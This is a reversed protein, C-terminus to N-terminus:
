DHAPVLLTLTLWDASAVEVRDMGEAWASALRRISAQREELLRRRRGIEEDVRAPLHPAALAATCLARLEKETHPVPAAPARLLTHPDVEPTKGGYPAFVVPILEEMVVPPDSSTVYRTLVHLIATVERVDRCGRAAVRGEHTGAAADRVLEILRRVLPHAIDLLELDPEDRALRPDFTAEFTAAFTSLALSVLICHQEL